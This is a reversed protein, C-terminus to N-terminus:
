EPSGAMATTAMATPSNVWQLGAETRADENKISIPM